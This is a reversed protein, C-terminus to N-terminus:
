DRYFLNVLLGTTPDTNGGITTTAAVVIGTSYTSPVIIDRDDLGSMAPIWLTVTPTTTGVTVGASLADYFQLFADTANPNYVHMGYVRAQVLAVSQKTAKLAANRYVSTGTVANDAGISVRM